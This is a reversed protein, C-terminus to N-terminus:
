AVIFPDIEGPPLGLGGAGCSGDTVVVAYRELEGSGARSVSSHRRRNPLRSVVRKGGWEQVRVVLRTSFWSGGAADDQM